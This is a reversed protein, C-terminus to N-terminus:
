DGAHGTDGDGRVEFDLHLLLRERRFALRVIPSAPSSGVVEQTRDRRLRRRSDGYTATCSLWAAEAGLLKAVLLRLSQRFHNAFRRLSVSIALRM